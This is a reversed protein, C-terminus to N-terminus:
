SNLKKLARQVYNTKTDLSLHLLAEQAHKIQYSLNMMKRRKELISSVDPKLPKNASLFDKFHQFNDM